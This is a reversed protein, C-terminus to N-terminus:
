TSSGKALPREEAVRCATQQLHRLLLWALGDLVQEQTLEDLSNWLDPEGPFLPFGDFSFRPRNM